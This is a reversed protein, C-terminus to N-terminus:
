PSQPGALGPLDFLLIEASVAPDLAADGTLTLATAAAIAVGDGAGVAQSGAATTLTLGGRAVQLWLSRGPLLDYTVSEGGDLVAGYLSMAQHVTVSNSRGDQSALLRLTGQKEAAPIHIEEYSPELGLTEPLIWIQLLHVPETDSANFESHRIGTGATMRQVDGPRIISGNGLSDKHQLSGSLVYTVIEMDQHGHTGFGQSPQIIDENIVRLSSFGMNQPDYYHGFSFSHHSDLWDMNVAGRDRAPRLTMM